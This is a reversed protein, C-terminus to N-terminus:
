QGISVSFTISEMCFKFYIQRMQICKCTVSQVKNAFCKCSAKLGIQTFHSELTSVPINVMKSIEAGPYWELKFIELSWHAVVTVSCQTEKTITGVLAYCITWFKVMTCFIAVNIALLKWLQGDSNAHRKPAVRNMHQHADGVRYMLRQVTYLLKMKNPCDFRNFQQVSCWITNLGCFLLTERIRTTM